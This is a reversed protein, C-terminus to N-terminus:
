NSLETQNATRIGSIKGKTNIYMSYNEGPTKNAYCFIETSGGNDIWRLIGAAVSYFVIDKPKVGNELAARFLKNPTKIDVKEDLQLGVKGKKEKGDVEDETENGEAAIEKRMQAIASDQDKPETFGRYIGNYETNRMEM